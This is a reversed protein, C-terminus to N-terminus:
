MASRMVSRVAKTPAIASCVSPQLPSSKSGSAANGIVRRVVADTDERGLVADWLTTKGVGRDGALLVGIGSDFVARGVEDVESVRGIAHVREM